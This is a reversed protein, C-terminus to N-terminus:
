KQRENEAAVDCTSVLYLERRCKDNKVFQYNLFNKLFQPSLINPEVKARCMLVGNLKVSIAVPFVVM